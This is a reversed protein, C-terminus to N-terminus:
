SRLTVEGASVKHLRGAPDRVLLRGWEDTAEAVGEVAEPHKAGSIRVERGLTVLSENWALWPSHGMEMGLYRKELGNLIRALLKERSVLWGTEASLSTAPTASEPLEDPAINVNLGTGLVATRLRADAFNGDLLMGGLKRWRGGSKVVIDNPWKLRALLGTEAAVAEAAALGAIMTLWPSREAPWDPRFLVSFLLSTGPPAQWSRGHRGRGKTQFDAVIVTGAAAGKAAMQLLLDNTSGVSEKYVLSRGLWKTGLAKSIRNLDLIENM